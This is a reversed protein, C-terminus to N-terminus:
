FTFRIGAYGEHHQVKASVADNYFKPKGANIYRYGIDFSIMRSVNIGIGAGANWCFTTDDNDDDSTDRSTIEIYSAGLGANLYPRIPSRIPLDYYFQAMYRNQNLKVKNIDSRTTEAYQFELRFSRIRAGIATDWMMRTDNKKEGAVTYTSRDAGIHGAVYPGNTLYDAHATVSLSLLCAIMFVTKKM